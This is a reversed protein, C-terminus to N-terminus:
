KMPPYSKTIDRVAIELALIENILLRANRVEPPCSRLDQRTFLVEGASPIADVERMVSLNKAPFVFEQTSAVFQPDNLFFARAHAEPHIEIVGLKKKSFYISPLSSWGRLELYRQIEFFMHDSLPKIHHRKLWPVSKTLKKRLESFDLVM